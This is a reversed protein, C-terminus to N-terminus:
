EHERMQLFMQKVDALRLRKDRPREFAALAHLQRAAIDYNIRQNSFHGCIRSSHVTPVVTVVQLFATAWV